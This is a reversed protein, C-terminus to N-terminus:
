MSNIPAGPRWQLIAFMGSWIPVRFDDEYARKGELKLGIADLHPGPVLSDLAGTDVRFLGEWNRDPDAPNRISVTVYTAGM